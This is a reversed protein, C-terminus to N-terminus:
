FVSLGIARRKNCYRCVLRSSPKSRNQSYACHSTVMKSQWWYVYHQSKKSFLYIFLYFDSLRKEENEPMCVKTALALFSKNTLPNTSRMLIFRNPSHIKYTRLCFGQGNGPEMEELTLIKQSERNETQTFHKNKKKEKINNGHPNPSNNSCFLCYSFTVSDEPFM